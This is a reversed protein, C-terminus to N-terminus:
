GHVLVHINAHHSTPSRTEPIAHVSFPISILWLSDLWLIGNLQLISAFIHGNSQFMSFPTAKFTCAVDHITPSWSSTGNSCCPRSNNPISPKCYLISTSRQSAIHTFSWEVRRAMKLVALVLLIHRKLVDVAKAVNTCPNFRMSDNCTAHYMISFSM